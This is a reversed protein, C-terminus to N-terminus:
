RVRSPEQSSPELIVGLPGRPVYVRLSEDDRVVDVPTTEGATGATTEDRLEGGSFIRRDAYSYIVDGPALRAEAAASTNRHPPCVRMDWFNRFRVCIQM